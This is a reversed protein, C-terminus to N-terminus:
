FTRCAAKALKDVKENGEIGTHAKVHTFTIEMQRRYEQMRKAYDQTYPKNTKWMGLAWQRVGEYDYRIELKKVGLSLAKECVALVATTEGQIQRGSYLDKGKGSIEYEEDGVYLCAGYGWMQNATNYSGDTYAIATEDMAKAEPEQSFCDERTIFHKVEDGAFDMTRFFEPYITIGECDDLDIWKLFEGDPGDDTRHGDPLNLLKENPKLTFFLSIEHYPVDDDDVFFNEHIAAMKDAECVIGTEEKVERCVADELSEGFKVRGGVSYYFERKEKPNRAMLVKRGNAIIVGIRFNFKGQETKFTCDISTNM